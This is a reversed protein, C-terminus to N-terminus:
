MKQQYLQVGTIQGALDRRMILSILPLILLGTLTVLLSRGVVKVPYMAQTQDEGRGLQVDFTWEGLTRGYFTRSVILYMQMIALFAVVLSLTTLSDSEAARVVMGLDMKTMSLMGAMFILSLAVIVVFDLAASPISASTLVLQGHPSDAASRRIGTNNIEKKQLPKPAVQAPTPATPSPPQRFLDQSPFPSQIPARAQIPMQPMEVEMTKITPRPLPETIELFSKGPMSPKFPAKELSSIVDNFGMPKKAVLDEGFNPISTPLEQLHEDVLGSSKVHEKLTAPKKHFGLGDTLPKFEFEDFPDM